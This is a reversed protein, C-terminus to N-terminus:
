FPINYTNCLIAVHSNPTSPVLSLIGAVLPVEAPVGDTLLIDGPLLQGNLYAADIQSATFFKLTGLAWGPSYIINGAAWRSPSSIEIGNALLYDQNQEASAYQEYTPFYFAKTGD